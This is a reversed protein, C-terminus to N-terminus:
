DTLSIIKNDKNFPKKNKPLDVLKWSENKQLSLIEENMAKKWNDSNESAM